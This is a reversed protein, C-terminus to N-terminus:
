VMRKNGFCGALSDTKDAHCAFINMNDYLLLRDSSQFPVLALTEVPCPDSDCGDGILCVAQGLMRLWAVQYFRYGIKELCHIPQLTQLVDTKNRCNEFLIMPKHKKLLEQGGQFVQWEAGEVDVKMVAPPEGAFSDLTTTQIALGGKKGEDAVVACERHIHDPLCISASGVRDMLAVAHCRVRDAIGAQEVVSTLDKYTPPCPEFAHIRGKFGPRSALKLSFWGWNSGVDYFVGNDPMILDVLASVHPEYGMSFMKSYIARFHTSKTNFRVRKSQGDIQYAFTGLFRGPFFNQYLYFLLLNPAGYLGQRGISTWRDFPYRYMRAIWPLEEIAFPNRRTIERCLIEKM